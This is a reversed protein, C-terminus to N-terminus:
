NFSKEYEEMWKPVSDPYGPCGIRLYDLLADGIGSRSDINNDMVQRACEYALRDAGIKDVRGLPISGGVPARSRAEGSKPRWEGGLYDFNSDKTADM